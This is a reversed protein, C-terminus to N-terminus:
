VGMSSHYGHQRKAKEDCNNEQECEEVCSADTRQLGEKEKGDYDKGPSRNTIKPFDPNLGRQKGIRSM